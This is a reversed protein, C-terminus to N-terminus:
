GDRRVTADLEAATPLASQAGLRGAALAGAACGRRVAAALDYGTALSQALTGCFADGAGVTDVVSAPFAPQWWTRRGDAAVAGLAGLTVVSAPSPIRRALAQWGEVTTPPDLGSLATAETQNVVLVDTRDLLRRLVPDDPRSLPAANLVVRIGAAHAAAAAALDTDLPVELQLLLVDGPHLGSQFRVGEVAAPALAANAGPAVVVTNEGDAAVVILATGTSRGAIVTVGSADVGASALNARMQGGYTDDGVAGVMRTRAGLRAATVAQNAGKGGPRIVADAGLVTQGPEPLRAVPVTIDVNISGVVVVAGRM